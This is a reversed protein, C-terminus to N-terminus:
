GSKVTVATEAPGGIRVISIMVAGDVFRAHPFDRNWNNGGFFEIAGM